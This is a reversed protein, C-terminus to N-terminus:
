QPQAKKLKKYQKLLEKYKEQWMIEDNANQVAVKEMHKLRTILKKRTWFEYFM